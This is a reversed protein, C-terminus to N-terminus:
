GGLAQLLTGAAAAALPVALNDDVRRAFLEAAAGAVAAVASRTVLSAADTPHFTSLAVFAGVFGFGAFALSGELSRGNALRHRGFRRGVIAAAPDGLGLVMLAAVGADLPFLLALLLIATTYWTASNVSSAEHPHAVPGFLSMLLENVRPLLRRSAEMGWAALAGATAVGIRWRPDDPLVLEVLLVVGVANAVHYANRVLNPPRPPVIEDVPTGVEQLAGVLADLKPGVRHRFAIWGPLDSPTAPLTVVVAYLEALRRHVEQLPGEPWTREALRSLAGRIAELRAACPGAGPWRSPDLDDLLARLDGALDRSDGALSTM